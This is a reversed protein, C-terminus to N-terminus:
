GVEFLNLQKDGDLDLLRMKRDKAELHTQSPELGQETALDM